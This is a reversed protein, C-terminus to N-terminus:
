GKYIKVHYDKAQHMFAELRTFSNTEKLGEYPITLSPIDQNEKQFKKLNAAVITGPMCNFPMVNIIGSAGKRAFDIAKGISLVAEGGFSSDIYPAANNLIEAITPEDHEGIKFQDWRQVAETVAVTLYGKINRKLLNEKKNWFNLYLFWEGFPPLWVQGGLSEIKRVINENSFHNHRVYIEGVIGVVPRRDNSKPIGDFAKVAEAVTGKVNSRKRIDNCIREMYKDYVADADGKVKEFPRAKRLRKEIIDVALIGNWALRTFASDLGLQAYIENGQDPAYIPVDQYGLKDLVIRQLRWYQGFRCPGTTTPMLFSIDGKDRKSLTKLMEGTTLVYPYCERGTSHKKGLELTELDHM